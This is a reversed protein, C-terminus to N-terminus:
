ALAAAEAVLQELAAMAGTSTLHARWAFRRGLGKSGTVKGSALGRDEMAIAKAAQEPHFRALWDIEPKTSASCFFCASKIPLPLGAGLIEQECRERDWGWDQLPYVNKFGPQEKGFAESCRKSDRAGADYGVAMQVLEGRAWADLAPQWGARKNKGRSVGRVFQMQPTLKWVMSCTHQGFAIAPLTQNRWVRDFLSRDGAKPSNNKVVTVTPFGVSELWANIIPLYARTEPKENDEGVDAHLILDPRIGRQRLGVLVATSDVGLGYSVILTM